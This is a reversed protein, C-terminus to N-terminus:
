AREAEPLAETMAHAPAEDDAAAQARGARRSATRQVGLRVDVLVVGFLGGDTYESALARLRRRSIGLPAVAAVSVAANAPDILEFASGGDVLVLEDARDPRHQVKRGADQHRACHQEIAEVLEAPGDFRMTRVTWLAVGVMVFLRRRLADASRNSILLLRGPPVTALWRTVNAIGRIGLPGAYRGHRTRPLQVTGLLPVGAIDAVHRATVVPRRIVGLLAVLGLGLVLGALGGLPARVRPPLITGPEFPTLASSQVAFQGVGAGPRNLEDVLASAADNAMEAARKPDPDFAQVVLVRSDKAAVINLRDPILDAASGKFDPNAAVAAAVTGDRFVAEGLLPLAEPRTTLQRAVVLADAEYDPPGPSRLLPIAAGALLCAILVWTYRRLCWVITSGHQPAEVSV